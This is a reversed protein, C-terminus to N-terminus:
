TGLRNESQKSQLKLRNSVSIIGKEEYKVVDKSLPRPKFKMNQTSPPVYKSSTEAKEIAKLTSPSALAIRKESRLIGPLKPTTHQSGSRAPDKWPLVQIHDNLLM